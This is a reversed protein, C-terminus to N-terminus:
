GGEEAIVRDLDLLEEQYKKLFKECEERDSRNLDSRGVTESIIRQWLEIRAIVDERKM